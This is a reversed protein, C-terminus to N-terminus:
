WACTPTPAWTPSWRTPCSTSGTSSGTADHARHEHAQALALATGLGPLGPPHDRRVGRGGGGPEPPRDAAGRRGAGGGAGATRGPAMGARPAGADGVARARLRGARHLHGPPGVSARRSRRAAPCPVPAAAPAIPNLTPVGASMPSPELERWWVRPARASTGGAPASCSARAARSPSRTRPRQAGRAPPRQGARGRARRAGDPGRRAHQARRGSAGGALRGRLDRGRRAGVDPRARARPQASGGEVLALRAYAAPWAILERDIM